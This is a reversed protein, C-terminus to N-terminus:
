NDIISISNNKKIGFDRYYFDNKKKESDFTITTPVSKSCWNTIMEGSYAGTGTFAVLDGSKLDSPVFIDDGEVPTDFSACAKGYVDAKFREKGLVREINGFDNKRYFTMGNGVNFLGASFKGTSLTVISKDSEYEHPKVNIVRGFTIGAMASLARGPEIFIEKPLQQNFHNNLSQSIASEYESLKPMGKKYKSPFGGGIDLVELYIEEKALESFINASIKITADWANVDEQQTGVHFCLGYPNLGLRKGELFLKKANSASVGFRENFGTLTDDNKDENATKIRIMLKSNPAYKAILSIDELNDSTFRNVGSEFAESIEIADKSPHTFIISKSDIGRELCVRLEEITAIEFCSKEENLSELVGSSTNAKVAAYIKAYPFSEKFERYNQKVIGLDVLRIDEGSLVRESIKLESIPSKGLGELVDLM